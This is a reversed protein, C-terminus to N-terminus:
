IIFGLLIYWLGLALTSELGLNALDQDPCGFRLLFYLLAMSNLSKGLSANHPWLGLSLCDVTLDSSWYAFSSVEARSTSSGQERWVHAYLCSIQKFHLAFRYSWSSSSLIPVRNDRNSKRRIVKNRTESAPQSVSQRVTQRNNNRYSM